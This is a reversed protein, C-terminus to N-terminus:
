VPAKKLGPPAIGTQLPVGSRRSGPATTTRRGTGTGKMCPSSVTKAKGNGRKLCPKQVVALGIAPDQEGFSLVRLGKMTLSTNRCTMYIGTNETPDYLDMWLM